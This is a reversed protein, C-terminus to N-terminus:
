RHEEAEKQEKKGAKVDLKEAKALLKEQEKPTLSPSLAVYARIQFAAERLHVPTAKPMEELAKALGIRADASKPDAFVADHYTDVASGVMKKRALDTALTLNKRATERAKAVQGLGRNARESSGPYTAAKKYAAEANNLDRTMLELDALAFCQKANNIHSLVTQIQADAEGFRNQAMLAQAYSIREGDNTPTGITSLDVKEGALSRLKAQALRLRLDNPNMQVAQDLM